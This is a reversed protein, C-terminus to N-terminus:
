DGQNARKVNSWSIFLVEGKHMGTAVRVEYVSEFQWENVIVVREGAALTLVDGRKTMTEVGAGDGTNLREQMDAFDNYSRTVRALDGATCKSSPDAVVVVTEGIDPRDPLRAVGLLLLGACAAAFLGCGALVVMSAAKLWM